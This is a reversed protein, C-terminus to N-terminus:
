IPLTFSLYIYAVYASLLLVGEARSLRRGTFLFLLLVVAAGFMVWQDFNVIRATVELPKILATVGLIGLINFLNSGLINGIAVDAQRKIAAMISVALEPLSTGVAVLTLGILAESVGFNIAVNVAGQILLKSGFILLVLGTLVMLLAVLVSQRNVAVPQNTENVTITNSLSTKETKYAWVLYFVLVSLLILGDLYNLTGFASLILLLVSVLVVMVADRRLAMETVNLASVSACIGLILLVNAINSGVVNGIAIGPQGNIVADISVVMEPMSTGFGVILLSSLLPSVGMRKAADLAGRILMEGGGTLLAFGSIIYILNLM